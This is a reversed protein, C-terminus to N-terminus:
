TMMREDCPSSPREVCSIIYNEGNNNDWYEQYPTRFCIAIQIKEGGKMGSAVVHFSFQDQNINPVSAVYRAPM